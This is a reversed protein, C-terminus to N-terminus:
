SATIENLRQKNHKEFASVIDNPYKKKSTIELYASIFRDIEDKTNYMGFSIRFVGPLSLKPFLTLIIRQFKELGPGINLIHKVIIHACLCGSRVGIGYMALKKSVVNAMMATYHLSLCAVRKSISSDSTDLVGFMETKELGSLENIAHKMLEIEHQHINNMGIRNLLECAKGTAAIGAINEKDSILQFNAPLAEKRALLVGTGFPAYIKHASFILFDINFTEIDIPAHAAIQAADVVLKANNKKCLAGIEQLPQITGLVNSAAHIAVLDIRKASSNNENHEKLAAEMESLSIFGQDDVSLRIVNNQEKNRWPLDNSSHEAITSLIFSDENDKVIGSRALLNISETTNSSFYAEYNITKANFLKLCKVKSLEIISEHMSTDACLAQFYSEWVPILAPTSAGNDFNIYNVTANLSPVNYQYGVFQTRIEELLAKGSSHILQDCFIDDEIDVKEPELHPAASNKLLSLAEAFLVCNLIAPTGAEFKDPSKAYIIWNKAILRTTGGGSFIPQLKKAKVKPIALAYVGMHLGVSKSSLVKCDNCDIHKKIEEFSQPSCFLLEYKKNNLKLHDLIKKRANEYLYTTAQSNFGSGRHVNSYTELIKHSVTKLEQKINNKTEAKSSTNTVTTPQNIEM